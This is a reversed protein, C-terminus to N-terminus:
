AVAPSELSWLRGSRYIARAIRAFHSVFLNAEKVRPDHVGPIGDRLQSFVCGARRGMGTPAGQADHLWRTRGHRAEKCLKRVVGTDHLCAPEVLSQTLQRIRQPPM